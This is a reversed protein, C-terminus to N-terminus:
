SRRGDAGSQLLPPQPRPPVRLVTFVPVPTAPGIALLVKVPGLPLGSHHPHCVSVVAGGTPGTQSSVPPGDAFRAVVPLAPPAAAIVIVSCRGPRITRPSISVEATAGPTPVEVPPVEPPLDGPPPGATTTPGTKPANIDPKTTDTNPKPTTVTQDPPCPEVFAVVHVEPIFTIGDISPRTVMVPVPAGTFPVDVSAAVAGVKDATTTQIPREAAGFPDVRIQVERGPPFGSGSLQVSGAVKLCKPSVSVQPQCGTRVPVDVSATSKGQTATIVFATTAPVDATYSFSGARQSVPSLRATVKGLLVGNRLLDVPGDAWQFGLILIRATSGQPVCTPVVTIAPLVAAAPAGAAPVVTALLVVM